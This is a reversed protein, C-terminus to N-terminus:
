MHHIGVVDIRQNLMKHPIDHLEGEVLIRYLADEHIVCCLSIAHAKSEYKDETGRVFFKVGVHGLLCHTMEHWAVHLLQFGRLKKNLFIIPRERRYFFMGEDSMDVFFFYVGLKKCLREFDEFLLQRKNFGIDLLEQPVFM